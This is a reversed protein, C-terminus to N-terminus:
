GYRIVCIFSHIYTYLVCVIYIATYMGTVAAHAWQDVTHIPFMGKYICIGYEKMISISNIYNDNSFVQQERESTSLNITIRELLTRENEPDPTWYVTATTNIAISAKNKIYITIYSTSSTPTPTYQIYNTDLLLQTLLHTQYITNNSNTNNLLLYGGAVLHSQIFDFTNNSNFHLLVIIDYLRHISAYTQESNDLFDVNFKSVLLRQKLSDSSSCKNGIILVRRTLIGSDSLSCLVFPKIRMLEIYVENCVREIIDDKLTIEQEDDSGFLDDM